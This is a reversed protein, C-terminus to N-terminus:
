ACGGCGECPASLCEGCGIADANLGNGFSGTHLFNKGVYNSKLNEHFPSMFMAMKFIDAIGYRQFTLGNECSALESIAVLNQNIPQCLLETIMDEYRYLNIQSTCEEITKKIDTFRNHLWQIGDQSLTLIGKGQQSFKRLPNYHGNAMDRTYDNVADMLYLYSGYCTGIKLLNQENQPQNALRATMGFLYASVTASPQSTEQSPSQEALTQIKGLETLVETDFNLATLTKLATEHPAKLVKDLVVAPLDKGQSDQIHDSNNVKVLEIAVAASFQSAVDQNTSVKKSPNLPCRREVVTIDEPTQATVLLNLLITEHRNLLSSFLGYHDGLAHCLGCMHTRYIQQKELSIISQAFCHQKNLM